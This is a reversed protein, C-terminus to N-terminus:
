TGLINSDRKEKVDWGPGEGHGEQHQLEHEVENLCSHRDEREEAGGDEAVRCVSGGDQSMCFILLVWEAGGM